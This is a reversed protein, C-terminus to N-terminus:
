GIRRSDVSIVGSLTSFNSSSSDGEPDSQEILTGTYTIRKKVIGDRDTIFKVFTVQEGDLAEMDDLAQADRVIDFDRSINLNSFSPKGPVSEEEDSGGDRSKTVSRSKTVGGVVAWKGPVGVLEGYVKDQTVKPM